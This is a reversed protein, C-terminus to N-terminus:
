HGGGSSISTFTLGGTVPVPSTRFVGATGTGLQGVGNQGWCYAAGATTLGCTYLNGVTVRSWSLQGAVATPVSRSIMTGDGLRGDDNLGWCFIGTGSNGCTHMLGVSIDSWTTPTGQLIAVAEPRTHVAQDVSGIGLQGNSNRGWCSANTNPSGLACTHEGIGTNIRRGDQIFVPSTVPTTTGNGVEGFDNRGWCYVTNVTSLACTQAQGASIMTFAQTSAVLLPRDSTTPTM